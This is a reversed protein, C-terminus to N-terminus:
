RTAGFREGIKTVNPIIVLADGAPVDGLLDNPFDAIHDGCDFVM